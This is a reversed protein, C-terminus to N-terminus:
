QTAIDDRQYSIDTLGISISVDITDACQEINPMQTNSFILVNQWRYTPSICGEAPLLLGGHSNM